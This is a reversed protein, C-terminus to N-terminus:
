IQKIKKSIATQNYAHGSNISDVQKEKLEEILIQAEQPTYTTLYREIYEKREEPITSNKLLEDIYNVQGDSIKYDQEDLDIANNVKDWQDTKPLYKVLRRIVTKRAMESFHSQWVCHKVKGAKFAKYSESTEKIADIESIDMLEVQKSGDHLVAVAYATTPNDKLGQKPRHIIEPSTGLSHEFTDGEYVVHSYINRVSGTDTVLKCLGMYSPELCAVVQHDMYRPVLYAMKSVPNLTLGTQAVNLVAEQLSQKTSKALYSNKALHQLAFSCEKLFTAEDCVQIFRPRIVEFEKITLKDEAM